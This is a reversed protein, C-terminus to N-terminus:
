RKEKMGRESAAVLVQPFTSRVKLWLKRDFKTTARM